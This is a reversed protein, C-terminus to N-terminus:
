PVSKAAPRPQLKERVAPNALSMPWTGSLLRATEDGIQALGGPVSSDSTGASHPTVIVNDMKLLPNDVPTPEVEFVDLGAGAIQGSQLAAILSAEDVVQGRCTNIFYATPKMANFFDADILKRTEDNLPVLISVFDSREALEQLSGVLEVRYDKAVWPIAYPDYSIVDLGFAAARRATARSINGLGVIGLTQGDITPMHGLNALTGKDWGGTRIVDHMRTLQKACALLMMITHNAVQETVFGATNVVMVGKETAANHDIQNFGHGMSVIAKATDIEEIVERPMAMGGDAIIVDAGKIAEIVEGQSECVHVDLQYDRGALRSEVISTDPESRTIYAIKQQTM